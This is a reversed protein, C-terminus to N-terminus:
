ESVDPVSKTIGDPSSKLLWSVWLTKWKRGLKDKVSHQRSRGKIENEGQDIRVFSNRFSPHELFLSLRHEFDAQRYKAIIDQYNQM